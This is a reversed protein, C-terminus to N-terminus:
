LLKAKEGDIIRYKRRCVQCEIVNFDDCLEVDDIDYAICGWKKETIENGCICTFECVATYEIDKTYTLVYMKGAKAQKEREVAKREISQLLAIQERNGIEPAIVESGRMFQGNVIRLPQKVENKM